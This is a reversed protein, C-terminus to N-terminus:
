QLSHLQTTRIVCTGKVSSTVHILSPKVFFVNIFDNFAKLSLQTCIFWLYNSQRSLNRQSNGLFATVSKKINYCHHLKVANLPMFADLRTGTLHKCLLQRWKALVSLQVSRYENTPINWLGRRGCIFCSVSSSVLSVSVKKRLWRDWVSVIQFRHRSSDLLSSPEVTQIQTMLSHSFCSMIHYFALIDARKMTINHYPVWNEFGTHMCM